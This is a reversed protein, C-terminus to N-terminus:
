EGSRVLERRLGEPRVVMIHGGDQRIYGDAVFAALVRNMSERTAAVMGALTTQSLKLLIRTGGEAPEGYEELKLVQYAVRGRVDHFAVEHFNSAQSLILLSMLGMDDFAEPLRV